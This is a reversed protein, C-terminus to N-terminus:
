QSRRRIIYLAALLSIAMFTATFGPSEEEATEEAYEEYAWDYDDEVVFDATNVNKNQVLQDRDIVKEPNLQVYDEGTQVVTNGDWISVEVVYNYNDPVTLNVGRIITEEPGIEGSSTWEKDAILRADMERAKVLIRYDETTDVGENKLYIDNQIVVGSSSAKRAIFDIGEIQIGTEQQDTPLRDLGSITMWRDYGMEGENVITTSIRYSGSKPLRIMQSIAKTEDEKIPGVDAEQKLELLGTQESFAKLMITANGDSDAGWNEVYTTVNLWVYTSKVSDAAMEIDRIGLQADPEEFERLCGSSAASFLIILLILFSYVSRKQIM